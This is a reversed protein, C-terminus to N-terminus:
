DNQVCEMSDLTDKVTRRGEEMADIDEDEAIHLSWDIEWDRTGGCGGTDFAINLASLRVEEERLADTDAESSVAFEVHSWYCRLLRDTRNDYESLTSEIHRTHSPRVSFKVGKQNINKLSQWVEEYAQMINM